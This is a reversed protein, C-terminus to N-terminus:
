REAGMGRESCVIGVWGFVSHELSTCEFKEIHEFYKLGCLIALLTKEQEKSKTKRWVSGFQKVKEGLM